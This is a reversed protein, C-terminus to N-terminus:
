KPYIIWEAGELNNLLNLKSLLDRLSDVPFLEYRFSETFGPFKDEFEPDNKISPIGQLRLHSKIQKELNFAEVGHQFILFKSNPIVSFGSRAHTKVRIELNNTIGYQLVKQDKRNSTLFYIFAKDEVNFGHISCNPCGSDSFMRNSVPTSWIYDCTNCKWDVKVGCGYSLLKELSQDLLESALEPNRVLLSNDQSAKLTSQGQIM